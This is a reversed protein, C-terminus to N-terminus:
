VWSSRRRRFRFRVIRNPQFDINELANLKQFTLLCMEAIGLLARNELDKISM